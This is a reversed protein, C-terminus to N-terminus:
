DPENENGQKYLNKIYELNIPKYGINEVSVNFYQRSQACTSHTHGHLNVYPMNTNMYMPEHSVWFFEGICIPYEIVEDFGVDHWWTKSRKRDHNGLILTKSGRLQKIIKTTEEKNLFSV